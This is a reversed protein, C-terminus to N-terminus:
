SNTYLRRYSNGIPSRIPHMTFMHSDSLMSSCWWLMWGSPILHCRRLDDLGGGRADLQRATPASLHCSRCLTTVNGLDFPAGGQHLPKLHHAELWGAAACKTCRWHDRDLCARRLRDWQRRHGARKHFDSLSYASSRRQGTLTRSQYVRPSSGHPSSTLGGRLRRSILRQIATAM